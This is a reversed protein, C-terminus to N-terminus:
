FNATLKDIAFANLWGQRVDVFNLKDFHDFEIFFTIRLLGFFVILQENFLSSKTACISGSRSHVDFGAVIRCFLFGHIVSSEDGQTAHSGSVELGARAIIEHQNVAALETREIAGIMPTEIKM